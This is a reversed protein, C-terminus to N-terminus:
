FPRSKEAGVYELRPSTLWQLIPGPVHSVCRRKPTSDNGIQLIDLGMKSLPFYTEVLHNMFTVSVTLVIVSRYFFYASVRASAHRQVPSM